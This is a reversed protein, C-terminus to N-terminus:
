CCQCLKATPPPPLPPLRRVKFSPFTPAQRMSQPSTYHVTTSKPVKPSESKWNGGSVYGSNATFLGTTEPDGNPYKARIERRGDVFLQDFGGVAGSVDGKKYVKRGPGSKPWCSGGNSDNWVYARCTANVSCAACCAAATKAAFFHHEDRGRDTGYLDYGATTPQCAMGKPLAAEYVTGGGGRGSESSTPTWSLALQRGGSVTAHAGAAGKICTGSDAATLTMTANLFHVGDKLVITRACPGKSAPAHWRAQELARELSDGRALDVVIDGPQIAHRGVALPSGRAPRDAPRSSAKGCMAGLELGDHVEPLALGLTAAYEFALARVACDTAAPAHQPRSSHGHGRQTQADTVGALALLAALVRM